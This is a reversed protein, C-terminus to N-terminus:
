EADEEEEGLRDTNRSQEERALSANKAALAEAALTAWDGDSEMAAIAAAKAKTAARKKRKAAERTEPELERFMLRVVLFVAAIFLIAGCFAGYFFWSPMGFLYRKGDEERYLLLTWWLFYLVVVSLTVIAERNMWDNAERKSRFGERKPKTQKAADASAKMRQEKKQKEPQEPRNEKM